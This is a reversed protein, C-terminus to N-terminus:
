YPRTPESIHILSLTDGDGFNWLYYLPAGSAVYVTVNYYGPVASDPYVVLYVQCPTYLTQSDIVTKCATAVCGTTDTVTVCYTTPTNLSVVVVPDPSNSSFTSDSNCSWQYTYPGAGQSVVTSLTTTSGFNTSNVSVSCNNINTVVVSDTASNTCSSATDNISVTINYTGVSTYSDRICM